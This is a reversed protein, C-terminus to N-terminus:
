FGLKGSLLRQFAEPNKAALENMYAKGKDPLQGVESWSLERGPTASTKQGPTKGGGKGDPLAWSPKTEALWDVFGSSDMFKTTSGPAYRRSGKEDKIILEGDDSIDCFRRIYDKVDDHTDSNFRGAAQSFIKDTVTLEKLKSKLSTNESALGDIEKQVSGRVEKQIEQEYAKQEEPSKAARERRLNDYDEKMAKFADPDIDKFRELKKELDTARAQERHFKELPVTEAKPTATANGSEATGNADSM